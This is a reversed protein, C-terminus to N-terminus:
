RVPKKSEEIIWDRQINDWQQQLAAANRPAVRHANGWIELDKRLKELKLSLATNDPDLVTQQYLDNFQLGGIRMVFFACQNATFQAQANSPDTRSICDIFGAKAGVIDRKQLKELAAKAKKDLELLSDYPSAPHPTTEKTTPPTTGDANVGSCSCLAAIIFIFSRV